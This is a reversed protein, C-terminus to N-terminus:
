LRYLVTIDECKAFTDLALEVEEKPVNFLEQM